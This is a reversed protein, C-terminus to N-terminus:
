LAPLSDPHRQLLERATQAAKSLKGEQLLVTARHLLRTQRWDEYLKSGYSFLLVGLLLAVAAVAITIALRAPWFKRQFCGELGPFVPRARGHGDYKIREAMKQATQILVPESTGKL